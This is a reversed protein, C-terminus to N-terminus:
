SCQEVNKRTYFSLDSLDDTQRDMQGRLILKREFSKVAKRRCWVFILVLSCAEGSGLGNMIQAREALSAAHTLMETFEYGDIESWPSISERFLAFWCCAPRDRVLAPTAAM